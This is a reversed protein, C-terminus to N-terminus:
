RVVMARELVAAAEDLASQEEATWVHGHADLALRLMEVADVIAALDPSITVAVELAAASAV